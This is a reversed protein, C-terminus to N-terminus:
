IESCWCSVLARARECACVRMCIYSPSIMGRCIKEQSLFIAWSLIKFIVWNCLTQRDRVVFLVVIKM